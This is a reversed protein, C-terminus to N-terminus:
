KNLARKESFVNFGSMYNAGTAFEVTKQMSVAPPRSLVDYM